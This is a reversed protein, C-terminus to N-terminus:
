VKGRDKIPVCTMIKATKTCWSLVECCTEGDVGIVKPTHKKRHRCEGEYECEKSKNCKVFYM